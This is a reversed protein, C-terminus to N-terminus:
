GRKSMKIVKAGLGTLIDLKKGLRQREKYSTSNLIKDSVKEAYEALMGTMAAKEESTFYDM